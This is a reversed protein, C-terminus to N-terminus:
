RGNSAGKQELQFQVIDEIISDPLPCDFLTAFVKTASLAIGPHINFAVYNLVLAWETDNSPREGVIGMDKIAMAFMENPSVLNSAM